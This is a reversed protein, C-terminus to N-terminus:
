IGSLSGSVQLVTLMNRDNCTLIKRYLTTYV